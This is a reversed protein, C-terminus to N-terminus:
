GEKEIKPTVDQSVLLSGLDALLLYAPTIRSDLVELADIMGKRYRAGPWTALLGSFRGLQSLFTSFSVALYSDLDSPWLHHQSAPAREGQM